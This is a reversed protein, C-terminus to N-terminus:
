PQIDTEPAFSTSARPGLRKKSMVCVTPDDDVVLAIPKKAQHDSIM